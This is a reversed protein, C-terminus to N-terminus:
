KEAIRKEILVVLKELAIKEKELKEVKNKLLVVEDASQKLAKTKLALTKLAILNIGDGYLSNLAQDSFRVTDLNSDEGAIWSSADWKLLRGLLPSPVSVDQLQDLYYSSLTDVSAAHLAYPTSWLQATGIDKYDSGGNLDISVNLYFSKKSWDIASFSTTNGKGTTIGKGIIFKVFGNQDTQKTVTEEWQLVGNATGSLIAMKFSVQKSPLAKGTDDRLVTQYPIGNAISQSVALHGSGLLCFIFIGIFAFNIKM